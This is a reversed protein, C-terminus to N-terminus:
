KIDKLAGQAKFNYCRLQGSTYYHGEIRHENLNITDGPYNSQVYTTPMLTALRVYDTDCFMIPGVENTRATERSSVYDQCPIIPVGFYTAVNFGTEYGPTVGAAGGARPIFKAEGLVNFRREAELLASWVKLTNYHTFLVKPMGGAATVSSWVSDILSQTLDRLTADTSGSSSVQASYTDSADRDLTYIDSDGSDSNFAADASSSAIRDLSEFGNAQLTDVAEVLYASIARVHVRGADEALQAGTITDDVSGLLYMAWDM